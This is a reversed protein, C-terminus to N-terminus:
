RSLACPSLPLLLVLVSLLGFGSEPSFVATSPRRPLIKLCVLVSAAAAAASDGAALDAALDPMRRAALSISDVVAGDVSRLARWHGESGELTLLGWGYHDGSRFASVASQQWRNYLKENNGGHGLVFHQVGDVPKSREYAHVHGSFMLDMTSLLPEASSRLHFTAMETQPQHVRSSHVWPAHTLVVLFPTTTRRVKMLEERLWQIQAADPSAETYPNLAVFHAPGASFAYWSSGFNYRCRLDYRHWSIVKTDNTVEEPKAEPTRWRKRYPVFAEGSLDDPEIEHNGPLVLWPIDACGQLDFLRQFSDWRSANSDAYALDGLIVGMDLENAHARISQCTAASFNTQGLDGVMAVRLVAAGPAPPVRQVRWDTPGPHLRFRFSKGPELSVRAQLLLPSRYRTRLACPSDLAFREGCLLEYRDSEPSISKIEGLPQQQQDLEQFELPAKETSAWGISLNGPGVVSVHVQEVM